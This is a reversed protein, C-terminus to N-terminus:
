QEQRRPRPEALLRRRLWARSGQDLAGVLGQIGAPWGAPERGLLRPGAGGAAGGALLDSLSPCGAVPSSMLLQGWRRYLVMPSGDPFWRRVM